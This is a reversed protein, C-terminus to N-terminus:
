CPIVVDHPNPVAAMGAARVAHSDSWVLPNEYEVPPVSGDRERSVFVLVTCAM